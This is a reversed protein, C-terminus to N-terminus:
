AAVQEALWLTEFEPAPVPKGFLYGQAEDCRRRRLFAAQEEREVGEAIVKTDLAQGLRLIADCITEAHPDTGIDDVFSKDIKIADVAFRRLYALSSYGTGFDDISVRLGLERLRLLVKATRGVDAMASTETIEVELFGRPIAYDTLTRELREPLDPQAFQQASLNIALRPSAGYRELWDHILMCSKRLVLDGITSILGAAEALPVFLAPSVHGRSPHKWRLLVEAGALAGPKAPSLLVKPQLVIYLEAREIALELDRVLAQRERAQEALVASFFEYKGGGNDYTRALALEAQTILEHPTLTSDKAIGIRVDPAVVTDPAVELPTASAALTREALMAADTPTLREGRALAFRDNGLRAVFDAPAAVACLRRALEALLRDGAETGYTANFFRFRMVNLLLLTAGNAAEHRRDLFELLATRNPLGTATDHRTLFRAREEAMERDRQRGLALERLMTNHASILEQLEGHASMDRTGASAAEPDTAAKISSARLALLPRLVWMDLVSMTGVTVVLVIIAVLGAIRLLHAILESRLGSTDMRTLVSAGGLFDTRWSALLETDGSTEVPRAMTWSPAAVHRLPSSGSQFLLEGQPGYIAVARLGYHGIVPGFDPIARRASARMLLPDIMIQAHDALRQREVRMFREASPILLVSEILFILAFVTFTIRWCLRCRLLSRFM